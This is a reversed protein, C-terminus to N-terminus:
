RVTFTHVLGMPCQGAQFSFSSLSIGLTFSASPLNFSRISSTNPNRVKFHFDSCFTPCSDTITHQGSAPFSSPCLASQRGHVPWCECNTFFATGTKLLFLAAPGTVHIQFRGSRIWRPLLHQPSFSWPCLLSPTPSPLGVSNKFQPSAGSWVSYTSFYPRGNPDAAQHLIYCM